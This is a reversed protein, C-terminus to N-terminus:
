RRKINEAKGQQKLINYNSRLRIIWFIREEEYFEKIDPKYQKFHNYFGFLVSVSKDGNTKTKTHYLPFLSKGKVGDKEVNAYLLHLLRTEHDGNTYQKSNFLKWLIAHSKSVGIQNDYRYLLWSLIFTKQTNSKYSYTLPQFSFMKSTDTKSFWVIPAFRFKTEAKNKQYNCLPWLLSVENSDKTKTQSFLFYLFNYKLVNPSKKIKFIPFVFSTHEDGKKFHGILPTIFTHTAFKASDISHGFSVLPFLTFSKYEQNKISWIVPFLIKTNITNTNYSWYLPFLIKRKCTDNGEYFVTSSYIPFINTKISDASVRHNFLGLINLHSKKPLSDKSYQYHFLPLVTLSKSQANDFKWVFPFLVKNNKLKSKSSFYLPFLTKSQASSDSSQHYVGLINLYKSPNVTDKSNGFSFLPFITFSKYHANDFKWILPFLINTTDAKNKVNTYLGLINLYKLSQASDKSHGTSFLPIISLSKFNQNDIKWVFPFLIQNNRFKDKRSWYIPFVTKNYVTDNNIIEKKLWILPFLVNSVHNKDKEYWYIPFIARKIKIDNKLFSIKSWYIPFIINKIQNPRVTQTYLGLINLYNFKNSTDKSHGWSVFPAFTFSKFKANDYSWILPFLVKNNHSSDKYSWYIPFLKKSYSTDTKGYITKSWYIPFLVDKTSDPTTKHNWIGSINLHKAPNSTDKNHGFSFFPLFTFSKYALNDYSWILPFLVNYKQYKEKYSWYIPFIIKRYTTDYSMYKTKSWVIPFLIHRNLSPKTVHSYLCLINLHKRDYKKGISIIPLFTFRHNTSNNTYWILPFLVKFNDYSDKHAFYIPFLINSTSNKGKLHTYLGLVNVYSSQKLSDKNYGYSFLPVFTFSRYNPSNTSWLIPFLIRKSFDNGVSSFYLPFITKTYIENEKKFWLLPFLIDQIKSGTQKHTYLGLINFYINKGTSDLIGYSFFPAFTFTKSNKTDYKWILPFLVKKSGLSNKSSWYIPFLTTSKATDNNALITTKNWIVPFLINQKLNPKDLHTYVGLINLHKFSQLSDNSHGVSFLPLVSLSSYQNNHYKWVLPFLVKNNHTKNVKSWYLPFLTKKFTTDNTQYETRSKFIPFVLHNSATSDSWYWYAPFLIAKRKHHIKDNKYWLLFLINNDIFLGNKSSTFGLCSINPALELLKYSKYNTDSQFHFVNPYYTTFIRLDKGSKSSDNYVLPYFHFHKSKDLYNDTHSYVNFLVQTEKINNDKYKRIIPWLDINKGRTFGFDFSLSQQKLSDTQSYANFVQFLIFILAIAIKKM